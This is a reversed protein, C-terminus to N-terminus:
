GGGGIPTLLESPDTGSVALIDEAVAAIEDANTSVQEQLAVLEAEIASLDVPSDEGRCAPLLLSALALSSLTRM